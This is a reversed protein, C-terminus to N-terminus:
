IVQRNLITNYKQVIKYLNLSDSDTLGTGISAFTCNKSSYNGVTGFRNAAFLYTKFTINDTVTTTTTTGNQVGNVYVKHINNATRTNVFFGYSKKASIQSITISNPCLLGFSTNYISILVSISSSNMAGIDYGTSTAQNTTSYYSLHNSFVDSFVNSFTLHTNAYNTSGNPQVGTASHVFDVGAGKVFTLRYAADSDTPNILNYKHSEATGGVFPYLAIFKTWLNNAKLSTVLYDIAYVQTGNTIGAATIFSIADVDSINRIIRNGFTLIRNNYSIM